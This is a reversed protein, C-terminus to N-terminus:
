IYKKYTGHALLQKTKVESKMPLDAMKNKDAECQVLDPTTKKAGEGRALDAM